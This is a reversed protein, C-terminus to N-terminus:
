ERTLTLKGTVGGRTLTGTMHRNYSGIDELKGDFVVKVPAGRENKSDAELRVTWKTSDLVGMAPAEDDLGPNMVGVIAKNKWEMVFLVAIQDKPTPSWDGSWTGAMPHGEQALAVAACSALLAVVSWM